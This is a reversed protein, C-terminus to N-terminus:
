INFTEPTNSQAPTPKKNSPKKTTVQINADYSSWLVVDKLFKGKALNNYISSNKINTKEHNV